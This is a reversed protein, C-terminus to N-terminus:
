ITYKENCYNSSLYKNSIARAYDFASSKPCLDIWL